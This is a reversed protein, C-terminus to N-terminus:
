LVLLCGVVIMVMGMSYTTLVIKKYRRNVSDLMLDAEYNYHMDDESFCLFM